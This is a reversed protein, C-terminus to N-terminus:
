KLSDKSQGGRSPSAARLHIHLWGLLAAPLSKDPTHCNVAPRGGAQLYLAQMNPPHGAEQLLLVAKPM